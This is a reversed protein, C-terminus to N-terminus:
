QTEQGKEQLLPTKRIETCGILAKEGGRGRDCDVKAKLHPLPSVASNEALTLQEGGHVLAPGLM